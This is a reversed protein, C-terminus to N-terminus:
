KLNKILAVVSAGIEIGFSKGLEKMTEIYEVPIGLSSCKELVDKTVRPDADKAVMVKYPEGNELARLTEKKGIKSRLNYNENSM